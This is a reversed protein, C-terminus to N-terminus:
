HFPMGGYRMMPQALSSPTGGVPPSGMMMMSVPTGTMLSGATAVNSTPDVPGRHSDEEIDRFAAELLAKIDEFSAVILLDHEAGVMQIIEDSGSDLKNLCHYIHGWDLRARGNDDVQHFVYQHFLRLVYRDGSDNPDDCAIILNLRMMLRMMRGNEQAKSCENLLYDAHGQQHGVEIAFRGALLTCIDQVTISQAAGSAQASVCMEILKRMAESCHPYREWVGEDKPNVREVSGTVLHMLVEGLSRIDEAFQEELTAGSFGLVLDVLGLGTFMVRNMDEVYLLKSWHLGRLPQKLDHFARILGLLQVAISWLQGETATDASRMPDRRTSAPLLADRLSRSNRVQRYEVIVDHSGLVFENTQTISSLKVLNPHRFHRLRELVAQAHQATIKPCDAIRRLVVHADNYKNATTFVQTQAGALLPMASVVPKLDVNYIIPFQMFAPSNVITREKPEPPPLFRRQMQRAMSVDGAPMYPAPPFMDQPAHTVVAGTPGYRYMFDANSYAAAMAAAAHQQHQHQPAGVWQQHQPAMAQAPNVHATAPASTMMRRANRSGGGGGGGGGGNVHGTAPM